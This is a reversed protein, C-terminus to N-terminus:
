QIVEGYETYEYNILYGILCYKKKLLEVMSVEVM